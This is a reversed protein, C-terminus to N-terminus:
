QWREIWEGERTEATLAKYRQFETYITPAIDGFTNRYTVELSKPMVYPITKLLRKRAKRRKKNEINRKKRLKAQHEHYWRTQKKAKAPIYDKSKTNTLKIITEPTANTLNIKTLFRAAWKLEKVLDNRDRKRMGFLTGKYRRGIANASTKPNAKIISWYVAAKQDYSKKTQKSSDKIQKKYTM